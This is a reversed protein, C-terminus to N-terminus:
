AKPESIEQEILKDIYWKAKRLCAVGGKQKWRGLYKIANGTCFAEIGTLNTTASEIADVCEIKGQRYHDPNTYDSM